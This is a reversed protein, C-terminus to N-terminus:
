VFVVVTVEGAVVVAVVVVGEVLKSGVVASVIWWDLILGSSETPMATAPGRRTRITAALRQKATLEFSDITCNSLEDARLNRIM